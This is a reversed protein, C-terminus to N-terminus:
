QAKGALSAKLQAEVEAVAREVAARGELKALWPKAPTLAKPSLKKAEEAVAAFQQDKLATEMRAVIAETSKDDPGASVRRVRVISKAGSLLRDVVSADVPEAEAELVAHAVDRFERVLDATTPLGQDKLKELTALELKGGSVKKVEALETAFRGGRDIARKLNGLELALVIREANTRRGEEGRVVGQLGQEVAALKTAVPSIANTVDQPRAVSQLQATMDAKLGDVASRLSGTGVKVSQLEAAIKESEGKLADIRQALRTADTKVTALERDIRLTGSRAAESAEASQVLRSDLEQGVSKRLAAMQTAISTELDKIQGTIAALQPIRGSQPDSAAAATLSALTEELRALRAQADVANGAAVKDPTARADNALQAQSEGLVKVARALDDLQALRAETAALKQVLEPAAEAPRQRVAQELTALRQALELPPQSAPQGGVGLQSALMDAGLLALVGGVVGALTHSLVGGLTVGSRPVAPGHAPVPKTSPRAAEAPKSASAAPAAPKVEAPKPDASQGAAAAAMAAPKPESTAAKPPEAPKVPPVSTASHPAQAPKATGKPDVETARLDIIATPKKPTGPDAGPKAPGMGPGDTKSTM